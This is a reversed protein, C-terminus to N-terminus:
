AIQSAIRATEEGVRRQAAAGRGAHHNDASV